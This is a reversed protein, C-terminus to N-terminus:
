NKFVLSENKLFRASEISVELALKCVEGAATFIVGRMTM